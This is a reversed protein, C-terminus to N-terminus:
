RLRRRCTRSRWPRAKSIRPRPTYGFAPTVSAYAVRRAPSVSCATRAESAKPSSRVRSATPGSRMSTSSGSRRNRRVHSSSSNDYSRVQVAPKGARQSGVVELATVPEGKLTVPQVRRAVLLTLAQLRGRDAQQRLQVVLDRWTFGLEQGDRALAVGQSQM